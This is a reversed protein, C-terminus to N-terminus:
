GAPTAARDALWLSRFIYWQEPHRAVMAELARMTAQTLDHVDRETDGSPTFPVPALVPRVRDSDPAERPLTAAFVSAGARLAIRAPGDHVAITDGFFEVRVGGDDPPVDILMAVVDRRKLARLISPGMREAALIEMGLARRAGLVLDNLRADGFTDAVVSVPVGHEALAAAGLDWNGFHMTVFVIGREARAADLMAWDDFVVRRHVEAPTIATFRLFDVLYVAYQAFSRRAAERARAEDGLVHRMNAICRKRGGRWALFALAGCVEAVAYAVPLPAAQALASAIRFAWFLM